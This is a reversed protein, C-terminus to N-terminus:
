KQFFCTSLRGVRAITHGGVALSFEITKPYIPIFDLKLPCSIRALSGCWFTFRKLILRWMSEYILHGMWTAAKLACPLHRHNMKISQVNQQLELARIEDECWHSKIGIRGM